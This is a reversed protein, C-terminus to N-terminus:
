DYNLWILNNQPQMFDCECLVSSAASKKVTLNKDIICFILDYSNSAM